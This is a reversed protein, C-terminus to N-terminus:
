HMYGNRRVCLHGEPNLPQGCFPCPPRGAAVVELARAAFALVRRPSLTVRIRDAEEDEAEEDEDEAEAEAEAEESEGAEEDELLERAEIVITEDEGDWTIAMTGVRFSEQLPEDLPARDIDEETPQEPVNAGRSRVEALLHALREALVAVQVKELVVSTIREGQRAQLFFTRSGPQGIAGAIFRDPDDFSYIRRVM